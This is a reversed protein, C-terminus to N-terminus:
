GVLHHAVEINLLWRATIAISLQHMFWIGLSLIITLGAITGFFVLMQSGARFEHKYWFIVHTCKSHPTLSGLQAARIMSHPGRDLWATKCVLVAVAQSKVTYVCTTPFLMGTPCRGHIVTVSHPVFVFMCSALFRSSLTNSSAAQFVNSALLHKM